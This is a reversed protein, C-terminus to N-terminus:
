AAWAKGWGAGGSLWGIIDTDKPTSRCNRKIPSLAPHFLDFGLLKTNAVVVRLVM